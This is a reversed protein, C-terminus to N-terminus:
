LLLLINMKRVKLRDTLEDNNNIREIIRWMEEATKIYNKQWRMTALVKNKNEEWRFFYAGDEKKRQEHKEPDEERTLHSTPDILREYFEQEEPSRPESLDHWITKKEKEKENM